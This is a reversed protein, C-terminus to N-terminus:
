ITPRRIRCRTDGSDAGPPVAGRDPQIRAKHANYYDSVDQDTINIKSTVEKNLVKEVTLSRRLDRKFDELTIKKEKLKQDFQEQTYPSKIENLKRDVEEDTALLGLKEARRMLIEDDILERLISLRLSTAQEGVPATAPHRRDPEPLVKRRRRPLNKPRRRHGDRRRGAAQVPLGDSVVSPLRGCLPWRAITRCDLQTELSADGENLILAFLVANMQAPRVAGMAAACRASREAHAPPQVGADTLARDLVARLEGIPLAGDVEEGNIFLTPTANVGLADGEQISAKM